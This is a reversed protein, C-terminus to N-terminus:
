WATNPNTVLFIGELIFVGFSGDSDRGFFIVLPAEPLLFVL